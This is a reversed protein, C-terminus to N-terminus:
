FPNVLRQKAYIQNYGRIHAEYTARTTFFGDALPPFATEMRPNPLYRPSPIAVWEMIKTQFIGHASYGRPNCDM